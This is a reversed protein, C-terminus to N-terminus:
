KNRELEAIKKKLSIITEANDHHELVKGCEPCLFNINTATDFDARMCMNKCIYFLGRYTEEKELREKLQELRRKELNVAVDKLGTPNFSWYSMYWGKIRDKKKYYTVLNQAQLRYLMNRVRNVTIKTNESIRFESVNAKDKLFKIVPITDEGAAESVVEYMDYKKKNNAM